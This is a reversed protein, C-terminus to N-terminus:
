KIIKLSNKLFEDQEVDERILKKKEQKSPRGAKRKNEDMIARAASVSGKEAEELLTKKALATERIKREEDWVAKTESFWTPKCLAKWHRWSGLIRIAAEYETDAEMYLKYVSLYGDHDYDRLTYIPVTNASSPHYRYEQFLANTKMKGMATRLVQRPFLPDTM